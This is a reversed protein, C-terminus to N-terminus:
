QSELPTMDMKLYEELRAIRKVLMNICQERYKHQPALPMSAGVEKIILGRSGGCLICYISDNM